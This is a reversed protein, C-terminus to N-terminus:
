KLAGGIVTVINAMIILSQVLWVLIGVSFSVLSVVRGLPDKVAGMACFLLSALSLGWSSILFAIGLVAYLAYETPASSPNNMAWSPISALFVLFLGLSVVSFFLLVSGLAGFAPVREPPLDIAKGVFRHLRTLGPSTM